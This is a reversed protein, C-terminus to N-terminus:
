LGGHQLVNQLQAPNLKWGSLFTGNPNAIVNLGTNPNVYHIVPNGRYTGQIARVGSSNIHQNVASNFKAANAKSYNGTVGFDGAHKFKRQLQKATTNLIKSSSKAAEEFVKEVWDNGNWYKIRNGSLEVWPNGGSVLEKIFKEMKNASETGGARSTSAPLNQTSTRSAVTDAVARMAPVTSSASPSGIFVKKGRNIRRKM